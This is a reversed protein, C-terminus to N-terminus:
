ITKRKFVDQSVKYQKPKYQVSQYNEVIDDKKWTQYLKFKDIYNLQDEDYVTTYKPISINYLPAFLSKLQEETTKYKTIYWSKKYIDYSAGNQKAIDRCEYPVKIYVKKNSFNNETLM